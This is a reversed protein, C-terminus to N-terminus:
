LEFEACAMEIVATPQQCIDPPAADADILARAGLNCIRTGMGPEETWERERLWGINWECNQQQCKLFKKGMIEATDAM